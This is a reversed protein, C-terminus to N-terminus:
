ATPGDARRLKALRDVARGRPDTAATEMGERDSTGRRATFYVEIRQYRVALRSVGRGYLLCPSDLSSRHGIEVKVSGGDTTPVGSMARRDYQQM